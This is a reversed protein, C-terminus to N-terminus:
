CKMYNLGLREIRGLDWGGEPNWLDFIAELSQEGLDQARQDDRFQVLAALAHFGERINHPCFNVVEGDVTERNLPLCIKGGYSLFTARRHNEIAEEELSIGVADEANLLANLHRGPVHAETAHHDYRLATEPRILSKFFPVNDDDANFVSCM